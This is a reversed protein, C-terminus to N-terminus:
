QVSAGNTGRTAVEFSGRATEARREWGGRAAHWATTTRPLPRSGTAAQGRDSRRRFTASRAARREFLRDCTSFGEFRSLDSPAFWRSSVACIPHTNRGDEPSQHANEGSQILWALAESRVAMFTVLTPARPRLPELRGYPLPSSTHNSTVHATSEDVHGDLVQFCGTASARVGIYLSLKTSSPYLRTARVKGSALLAPSLYFM